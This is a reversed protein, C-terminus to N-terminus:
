DVKQILLRIRYRPIQLAHYASNQLIKESRFISLALGILGMTLVTSFNGILLPFSASLLPYGLSWITACLAQICLPLVVALVIVRGLQSRHRLGRRLLWGALLLFALVAVLFPLWGLQYVLTTLFADGDCDLVFKEFPLSSIDESWTGSGLWQAAGLASRITIAPYGLNSPDTEPHFARISCQSIFDAPLSLCLAAGVVTALLAVIGMSRKRGVAFWDNWAATALLSFGTLLLILLGLWYPAAMALLAPPLIGAAAWALGSLGKGRWTYMWLACTVPCCLVVHRAFYNVGGPSPLFLIALIGTALIGLYLIRGSCALITCDLFYGALLAGCGLLFALATRLPDIALYPAWGATLGVRLVSGALALVVTFTLLGRQPSPRHIDNLAQGVSVPDGMEAVALEEADERGQAAFADRQDELHQRLELTVVPRARKWRIQESVCTLYASITKDESM